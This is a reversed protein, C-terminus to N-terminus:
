ELSLGKEQSVSIIDNITSLEAVPIIILTFVNNTPGRMGVLNIISVSLPNLVEFVKYTRHTQNECIIHIFVM